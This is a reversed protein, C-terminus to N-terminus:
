QSRNLSDLAARDLWRGRVMVGAIRRTAGIDALPNAELLILDARRGVEVSGFEEAQGLFRAANVTGTRIAEYPSLGSAVLERLEQHVSEGPLASATAMADTGLLLPVGARHLAGTMRRLLAAQNRMGEASERTMPRYRNRDPQWARALSAPIRRMQPTALVSDLNEIQSPIGAFVSLTPTVWAGAQLTLQAATDTLAIIAERTAPTRQFFFWGYLYEEVHAIMKQRADLAAKLGLNRPLHGVVPIRVAAAASMLAAYADASMDGHVKVMDYGAASQARVSSDAQAATQTYPQGVFFGSTAIMPGFVEGRRVRDRLRLHEELGLLNVITTVGDAIFLNLLRPNWISDGLYALHVHADTLGPMLWRGTGDVVRAGAPISTSAAKGIARIRGDRVVVTQEVLVTDRTMPVVSVNRFVVVEPSLPTWAAAQARAGHGLVSALAVAVALRRRSM